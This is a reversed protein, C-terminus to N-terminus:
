TSYVEQTTQLIEERILPKLAALTTLDVKRQLLQELYDNLDFIEWGVPRTFEVLMDIDSDSDERETGNAVSGFVTLRRVFFTDCLEQKHLALTHRINTLTQPM